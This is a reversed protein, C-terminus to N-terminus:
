LWDQVMGEIEEDDVTMDSHKETDDNPKGDQSWYLSSSESDSSDSSILLVEEPEKKVLKTIKPKFVTAKKSTLAKRMNMKQHGYGNAKLLLSRAEEDHILSELHQIMHIKIHHIRLGKAIVNEPVTYNMCILCTNSSGFQEIAAEHYHKYSLHQKLLLPNKHGQKCRKCSPYRARLYKECDLWLPNSMKSSFKSKARGIKVKPKQAMPKREKRSKKANRTRVTLSNCAPLIKDQNNLDILTEQKDTNQCNMIVDSSAKQLVEKAKGFVFVDLHLSMHNKIKAKEEPTYCSMSQSPHPLVKKKCIPCVCGNGFLEIASKGYHSNTLHLRLTTISEHSQQCSDCNPFAKKFYQECNQLSPRMIGNLSIEGLPPSKFNEEVDDSPDLKIDINNGKPVDVTELLNVISNEEDCVIVHSFLQKAKGSLLSELHQKKMHRKIETLRVCTAKTTVEYDCKACVNRQGFQRLAEEKYHVLILHDLLQSPRKFGGLCIKCVPYEEKLFQMCDQWAPDSLKSVLFTKPQEMAKMFCFKAEEPIILELHKMAMHRKLKLNEFGAISHDHIDEHSLAFNNCVACTSGHGFLRYATEKCHSIGYHQKMSSSCKFGGQCHKCGPHQHRLFDACKQWMPNNLKFTKGKSGPKFNILQSKSGIQSRNLNGQLQLLNNFLIKGNEPLCQELHKAMHKKILHNLTMNGKPPPLKFDKCIECVNSSGFHKIAADGYHVLVMHLKLRYLNGFEGQCTRCHPFENRVFDECEQWHMIPRRIKVAHKMGGDPLSSDLIKTKNPEQLLPMSKSSSAIPFDKRTNDESEADDVVVILFYRASEPIFVTLHCAMHSLIYRQRNKEGAFHLVTACEPCKPGEGFASLAEQRYHSVTLHVMFEEVSDHGSQCRKCEPFLHRFYEICANWQPTDM